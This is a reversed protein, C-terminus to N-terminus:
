NDHKGESLEKNIRENYEKPTEEKPKEPEVHGGASGSLPQDSRLQSLEDRIKSIEEREKKLEEIAERTEELVSLKPKEATEEKKEETKTENENVM